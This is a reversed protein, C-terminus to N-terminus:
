HWDISGPRGGIKAHRAELFPGSYCAYCLENKSCLLDALVKGLVVIGVDYTEAKM